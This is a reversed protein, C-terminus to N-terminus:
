GQKIVLNLRVMDALFGEVDRRATEHTINYQEVLHEELESETRPKAVCEWLRAGAENLTYVSKTCGHVPVLLNAGAVQRAVVESKQTFKMKFM